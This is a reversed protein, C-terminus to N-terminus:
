FDSKLSSQQLDHTQVTGFRMPSPRTVSAKPLVKNLSHIQYISLDEKRSKKPLLSLAIKKLKSLKEDLFSIAQLLHQSCTSLQGQVQYSCALNYCIIAKYNSDFISSKDTEIIIKYAKLLRQQGTSVERM